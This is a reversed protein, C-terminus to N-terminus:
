TSLMMQLLRPQKAPEVREATETERCTASRGPLQAQPVAAMFDLSRQPSPSLETTGSYRLISTWHRDRAVTRIVPHLAHVRCPPERSMILPVIQMWMARDLPVSAFVMQLARVATATPTSQACTTFRRRRSHVSGPQLVPGTGLPARTAPPTRTVFARPPAVCEAPPERPTAIATILVHNVEVQRPLPVRLHCLRPKVNVAAVAPPRTASPMWVAHNGSWQSRLAASEEVAAM